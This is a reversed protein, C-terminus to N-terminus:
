TTGPFLAQRQAVARNYAALTNAEILVLADYLSLFEDETFYIVEHGINSRRDGLAGGPPGNRVSITYLWGVTNLTVGSIKLPELQGLAASERLYVVDGISYRNSM